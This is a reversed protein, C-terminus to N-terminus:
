FILFYFFIFNFIYWCWISWTQAWLFTNFKVIKIVVRDVLMNQSFNWREQTLRSIALCESPTCCKKRSSQGMAPGTISVILAIQKGRWFLWHTERQCQFPFLRCYWRDYFRFSRLRKEADSLDPSSYISFFSIFKIQYYRRELSDYKQMLKSGKQLREPGNNVTKFMNMIGM